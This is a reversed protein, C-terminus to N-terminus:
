IYSGVMNNFENKNLCNELFLILYDIETILENSVNVLLSAMMQNKPFRSAGPTILMESIYM